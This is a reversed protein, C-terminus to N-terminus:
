KKVTRRMFNLLKRALITVDTQVIKDKTADFSPEMFPDKPMTGRNPGKKDRKVTGFEVLHAHHGKFRGRRPGVHVEGLSDAASFSPKIVGISDILGGTPGEPATLKAKNVLVKAAEANADQFVKHSFQLPMKKFLEDLEKVGTINVAM